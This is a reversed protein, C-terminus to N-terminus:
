SYPGKIVVGGKAMKKVRGGRSMKKPMSVKGGNRMKMMSVKGGRKMKKPMSVKGGMMMKKPKKVEGGERKKIPKKKPKPPPDKKVPGNRRSQKDLYEYTERDEERNRKRFRAEKADRPKPPKKAM